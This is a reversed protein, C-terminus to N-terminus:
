DADITIQEGPEFLGEDEFESRVEDFLEIIPHRAGRPRRRARETQIHATTFRNQAIRGKASEEEVAQEEYMKLFVLKSLEHFAEPPGLGSVSRLDKHIANFVSGLSTYKEALRDRQERRIEQGIEPVKFCEDNLFALVEDDGTVASMGKILEIVDAVTVDSQEAQSLWECLLNFTNFNLCAIKRDPEDAYRHNYNAFLDVTREFTAPSIFLSYCTKGPNSAVVDDLHATVPTAEANSQAVRRLKTVEVTIHVDPNWMEIDPKGGPAHSSATGNHKVVLGRAGLLDDLTRRTQVELQIPSLDVSIRDLM